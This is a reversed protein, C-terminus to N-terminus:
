RPRAFDQTWYHRYSGGTAYGVGLQTFNRNMINACHGPSALWGRMVADVTAYGAAINEGAYSYRYGTATIRAWPTSGNSGTHSFFNRTAMDTSHGQAATTLRSDLTLPPAAAYQTTGCTRATARAQNVAALMAQNIQDTAQAQFTQGQEEDPAIPGEATESVEPAGCGALLAVVIWGTRLSNTRVIVEQPYPQRWLLCAGHRFRGRALAQFSKAAVAAPPPEVGWILPHAGMPAGMPAGPRHASRGGGTEM